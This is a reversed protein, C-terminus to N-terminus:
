RTVTLKYEDKEGMTFTVDGVIDKLAAKGSAKLWPDHIEKTSDVKLYVRAQTFTEFDRTEGGHEVRINKVSIRSVGRSANSGSTGSSAAVSGSDLRPFTFLKGSKVEAAEASLDLLDCLELITNKRTTASSVLKGFEHRLKNRDAEPLISFEGRVLDFAASEKEDRLSELRAIEKDIESIENRVTVVEENESSDVADRLDDDTPPLGKRYKDAIATADALADIVKRYAIRIGNEPHNEWDVPTPTDTEESEPADTEPEPTTTETEQAEIADTITPQDTTVDTNEEPTTDAAPKKAATRAM